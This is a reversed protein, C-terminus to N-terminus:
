IIKEISILIVFKFNAYIVIVFILTESLSYGQDLREESNPVEFEKINEVDTWLWLVNHM